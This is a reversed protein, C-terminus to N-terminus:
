SWSCSRTRWHHAVMSQLMWRQLSFDVNPTPHGLGMLVTGNSHDIPVERNGGSVLQKMLDGVVNNSLM